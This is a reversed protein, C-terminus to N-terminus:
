RVSRAVRFGDTSTGAVPMAGPAPSGFPSIEPLTTSAVAGCCVIIVIGLTRHYDMPRLM